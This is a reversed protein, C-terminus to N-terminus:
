PRAVPRLSTKPAYESGQISEPELDEPRTVTTVKNNESPLTYALVAGGIVAGIFGARFHFIAKLANSKKYQNAFKKNEKDFRPLTRMDMSDAILEINDKQDLAHSSFANYYDKKITHKVHSYLVGSVASFALFLSSITGGNLASIVSGGIVTMGGVYVADARFDTQCENAKKIADDSIKQWQDAIDKQTYENGM